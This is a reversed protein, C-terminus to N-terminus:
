VAPDTYNAPDQAFFPPKDKKFIAAGILSIVIGIFLGMLAIVISFFGPTLLQQELKQQSEPLGRITSQQYAQDVLVAFAQPNFLTWYLYIFIATLLMSIVSFRLGSLFGEGFTMFGDSKRKYESQVVIIFAVFVILAIFKVIVINFGTLQTAVTLLFLLILYLFAWKVSIRISNYRLAM